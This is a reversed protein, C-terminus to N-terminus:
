QKYYEYQENNLYMGCINTRCMPFVGYKSGDNSVFYEFKKNNNELWSKFSPAYKKKCTFLFKRFKFTTIFIHIEQRTNYQSKAMLVSDYAQINWGDKNIRKAISKFLKGHSSTDKLKNQRIYLHIMEHIITNDFEKASRDYYKSIAITFTEGFYNTEWSMSGLISKRRNIAFAPTLLENNFYKQNYKLFSNKIFDITIVM